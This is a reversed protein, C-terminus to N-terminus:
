HKGPTRASLELDRKPRRRGRIRAPATRHLQAVSRRPYVLDTADMNAGEPDGVTRWAKNRKGRMSISCLM